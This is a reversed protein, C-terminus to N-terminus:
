RDECCMKELEGLIHKVVMEVSEFKSSSIESEKHVFFFSDHMEVVYGLRAAWSEVSPLKM